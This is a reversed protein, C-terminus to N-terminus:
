REHRLKGRRRAGLSSRAAAESKMELSERQQPSVHSGSLDSGGSNVVPWAAIGVERRERQFSPCKGM